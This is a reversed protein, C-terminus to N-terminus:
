RSPHDMRVVLDESDRGGDHILTFGMQIKSAGGTLWRGDAIRFPVELKAALVAELASTIPDIGYNRFGGSSRRQMKRTLMRDYEDETPYASRLRAIM